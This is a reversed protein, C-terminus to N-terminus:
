AFAANSVTSRISGSSAIRFATTLQISVRSWGTMSSAGLREILDSAPEFVEHALPEVVFLQRRTKVTEVRPPDDEVSLRREVDAAREVRESHGRL